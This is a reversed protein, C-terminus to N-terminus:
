VILKAKNFEINYYCQTLYGFHADDRCNEVRPRLLRNDLRTQAKKMPLDMRRISDRTDRM